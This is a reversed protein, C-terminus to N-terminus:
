RHRVKFALADRMQQFVLDWDGLRTQRFLRLTPYWPSDDRERMWRWDTVVSLPLWTPVGLAAALHVPASDVAIVLDMCKMMAASDAFFIPHSQAGDHLEVLPFRGRVRPVQEIGAGRQLSFLTVGPVHALIEFRSLPVSRHKDWGNKVHGQWVVGVKLTGAHSNEHVVSQWHAVRDPLGRLYPVGAPLNKLTVKAVRPVSMLPLHAHYAPLPDGFPVLEDVGELGQFVYYLPSPCELVVRGVRQRALSVFRAFQITDGLGQECHLLLTGNPMPEGAWEPRDFSRQVVGSQVRRWEYEDWGREYDGLELLALSRNWRAAPLKPELMLALDYCALSERPRGQLKLTTGLNVHVFTHNPQLELAKGFAQEAEDLRGVEMLASGLNNWAEASRPDIRVAQSLLVVAEPADQADALSAGLLMLTQADIPRLALATRFSAVAEERRGVRSLIAGLNRNAEPDNPNLKLSERLSREAEAMAGQMGRAVGLIHHAGPHNPNLAIVRRSESEADAFRGARLLLLALKMRLDVDGPSGALAQRFREIEQGIDDAM